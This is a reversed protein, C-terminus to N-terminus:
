FNKEAVIDEAAEEVPISKKWYDYIYHRPIYKIQNKKKLFVAIQKDYNLFDKWEDWSKFIRGSPFQYELIKTDKEANFIAYTNVKNESAVYGGYGLKVIANHVTENEFYRWTDILKISMPKINFKKMKGEKYFLDKMNKELESYLRDFEDLDAQSIPDFGYYNTKNKSGFLIFYAAKDGDSVYTSNSHSKIYNQLFDRIPKFLEKEEKTIFNTNLTNKHVESMTHVYNRQLYAYIYETDKKYVIYKEQNYVPNPFEEGIKAKMAPEYPEVIDDGRMNMMIDEKKIKATFGFNNYSYEVEDPLVDELKKFDTENNIDFLNTIVNVKYINPELDLAGDFSKQDAYEEAFNETESFFTVEPKFSKFVYPSGHYLVKTTMSENLLQEFTKIFKM